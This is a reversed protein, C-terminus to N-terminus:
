RLTKHEQRVHTHTRTHSHKQVTPQPAIVITHTKTPQVNNFVFCVLLSFFFNSRRGFLKAREMDRKLKNESSKKRKSERTLVHWRGTKQTNSDMTCIEIFTGFLSISTLLAWQDSARENMKKIDSRKRENHYANPPKNYIDSNVDGCTSLILAVSTEAQRHAFKREEPTLLPHSFLCCEGFRIGGFALKMAAESSKCHCGNTRLEGKWKSIHFKYNQKRNPPVYQISSLIIKWVIYACMCFSVKLWIPWAMSLLLIRGFSYMQSCRISSVIFILNCIDTTM